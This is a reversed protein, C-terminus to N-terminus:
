KGSRMMAALEVARGKVQGAWKSQLMADAALAYDGREMAALTNRFTLLSRTGMNFHMDLLARQRADTMQRWWPTIRDLERESREIDGDLMLLAEAETIGNDDLNRGVGITTKGVTDSYPSLRLGEHRILQQKLLDRNM